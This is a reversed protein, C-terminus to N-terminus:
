WSDIIHLTRGEKFVCRVRSTWVNRRGLSLSSSKYSSGDSRFRFYHMAPQSPLHAQTRLKRTNTHPESRGDTGRKVQKNPTLHSVFPSGSTEATVRNTPFGVYGSVPLGQDSSQNGRQCRSGGAAFASVQTTEDFFRQETGLLARENYRPLGLEPLRRTTPLFRRKTPCLRGKVGLNPECM